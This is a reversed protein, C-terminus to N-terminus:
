GQGEEGGRDPSRTPHCRENQPPPSLDGPLTRRFSDTDRTATEKGAALLSPLPYRPRFDWHNTNSLTGQRKDRTEMSLLFVHHIILMQRPLALGGQSGPAPDPGTEHSRFGGLDGDGQQSHACLDRTDEPKESATSAPGPGAWAGWPPLQGSAPPVHRETPLLQARLRSRAAPPPEPLYLEGKRLARHQPNDLCEQKKALSRLGDANQVIRQPRQCSQGQKRVGPSHRGRAPPAAPQGPRHTPATYSGRPPPQWAQRPAAALAERERGRQREPGAPQCTCNTRHHSRTRLPFRCRCAPGAFFSLLYPFTLAPLKLEVQRTSSTSYSLSHGLAASGARGRGEHEPGADEPRTPRHSRRSSSCGWRGAPSSPHVARVPTQRADSRGRPLFLWLPFTTPQTPPFSLVSLPEAGSRDGAARCARSSSHRTDSGPLAAPAPSSLRGGAGRRGAREEGAGARVDQAPSPRPRAQCHCRSPISCGAGREPSARSPRPSRLDARGAWSPARRRTVGRLEAPPGNAPPLAASPPCRTRRHWQTRTVADMHAETAHQAARRAQGDAHAGQPEGLGAATGGPGRGQLHKSLLLTSVMKSPNSPSHGRHSAPRHQAGWSSASPSCSRQRAAGARQVPVPISSRV